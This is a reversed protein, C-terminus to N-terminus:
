PSLMYAFPGSEGGCAAIGVMPDARLAVQPPLKANKPRRGGETFTRRAEEEPAEDQPAKAPAEV